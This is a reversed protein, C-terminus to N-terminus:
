RRHDEIALSAESNNALFSGRATQACSFVTVTRVAPM